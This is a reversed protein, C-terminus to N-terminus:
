EFDFTAARFQPVTLTALKCTSCVFMGGLTVHMDLLVTLFPVMFQIAM